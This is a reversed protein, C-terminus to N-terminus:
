RQVNICCVGWVAFTVSCACCCLTARDITVCNLTSCVPSSSQVSRAKQIQHIVTRTTTSSVSTVRIINQYNSRCQCLSLNTESERMLICYRQVSLHAAHALVISQYIIVDHCTPMLIFTNLPSFVNVFLFLSLSSPPPSSIM